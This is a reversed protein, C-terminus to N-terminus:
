SISTRAKSSRRRTSASSAMLDHAERTGADASEGEDLVVELEVFDGLGEVRDIHIRTRGSSTCRASSACAARSAM